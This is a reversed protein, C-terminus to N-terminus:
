IHIFPSFTSTYEIYVIALNLAEEFLAQLINAIRDFAM